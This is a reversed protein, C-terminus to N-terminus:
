KSLRLDPYYPFRKPPYTIYRVPKESMEEMARVKEKDTEYVIGYTFSFDSTNLSAKKAGVSFWGELSPKIVLKFESIKDYMEKEMRGEETTFNFTPPFKIQSSLNNFIQGIKEFQVREMEPFGLKKLDAPKDKAYISKSGAFPNKGRKYPDIGLRKCSEEIERYTFM